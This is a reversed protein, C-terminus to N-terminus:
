KWWTSNCGCMASRWLLWTSIRLKSGSEFLSNWTQNCVAIPINVSYKLIFLILIIKRHLVETFSFSVKHRSKSRTLRGSVAYVNQVGYPLSSEVQIDSDQQFADLLDIDSGIVSPRFISISFWLMIRVWIWFTCAIIALVYRQRAKFLQDLLRLKPNPRRQLDDYMSDDITETDWNNSFKNILRRQKDLESITANTPYM